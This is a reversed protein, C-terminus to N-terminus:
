NGSRKGQPQKGGIGERIFKERATTLGRARARLDGYLVTMAVALFPFLLGQALGRVVGALFLVSGGPLVHVAQFSLGMAIDILLGIGLSITVLYGITRLWEGSLLERASVGADKYSRDHILLAHVLIPPGYFMMPIGLADIAPELAGIVLALATSMVAGALLDGGRGRVTRLAPELLPKDDTMLNRVLVATVGVAFSALFAPLVLRASYDAAIEATTVSRAGNGLYVKMAIWLVSLPVFVCGFLVFLQFFARRYLNWSRAVLGSLGVPVELEDRLAAEKPDAPARNSRPKSIASGGRRSCASSM